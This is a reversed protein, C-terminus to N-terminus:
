CRLKCHKSSRKNLSQWTNSLHSKRDAKTLLINKFQDLTLNMRALYGPQPLLEGKLIELTFPDEGEAYM